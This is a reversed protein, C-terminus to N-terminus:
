DEIKEAYLICHYCNFLDKNSLDVSLFFEWKRRDKDKGTLCATFLDGCAVQQINVGSQGELYRPVYTPTHSETAGPILTDTGM